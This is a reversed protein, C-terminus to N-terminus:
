MNALENLMEYPCDIHMERLCQREYRFEVRTVQGQGDWGNERWVQEFWRKHHVRVEKTKDYICCAHPATKSFDFQTVRRGTITIDDDSESEEDGYIDKAKRAKKSRGRTVFADVDNMSLEWGAIDACIHVESVQLMFGEGGLLKVLFSYVYSLAEGEGQEHLLLSSLRVKACIGNFKSKGLDVHLYHEGCYLIWRWQLGAGHPKIHMTQGLFQWPTPLDEEVERAASQLRDLQDTLDEPLNGRANIVWTDIHWNVLKYNM